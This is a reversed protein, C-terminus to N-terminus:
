PMPPSPCRATDGLAHSCASLFRVRTPRQDEDGKRGVVVNAEGDEVRGPLPDRDRSGDHADPNVKGLRELEVGLVSGRRAPSGGVRLRSHTRRASRSLHHRHGGRTRSGNLRTAHWGLIQISEPQMSVRTRQSAVLLVTDIQRLATRGPYQRHSRTSRTASGATTASIPAPSPSREVGEAKPWPCRRHILTLEYPGSITPGTV